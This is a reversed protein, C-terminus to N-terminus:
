MDTDRDIDETGMGPPNKGCVMVKKGFCSHRPHQLCLPPLTDYHFAQLLSPSAHNRAPTAFPLLSASNSTPSPLSCFMCVAVLVIEFLHQLKGCHSPGHYSFAIPISSPHCSPIWSHLHFHDFNSEVHSIPSSDKRHRVYTCSDSRIGWVFLNMFVQVNLTLHSSTSLSRKWKKLDEEATCLTDMKLTAHNRSTDCWNRINRLCRIWALFIKVLQEWRFSATETQGTLTCAQAALISAIRGLVM